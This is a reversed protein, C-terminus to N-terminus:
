SHEAFENGNDFTLIKVLPTVSNLKIIIAQSVLDSTKNKVKALVAYGSKREVLTVIAQQHTSGIVTGGEL